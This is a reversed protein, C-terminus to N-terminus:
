DVESSDWENNNSINSPFKHTWFVNSYTWISKRFNHVGSEVQRGEKNM